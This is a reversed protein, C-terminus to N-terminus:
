MREIWTAKKGTNELDLREIFAFKECPIQKAIVNVVLTFAGFLWCCFMMTSTLETTGLLASGLNNSGANIMITQVAMEFIMVIWFIPNNFLSRFINIEDKEIVRCNFANFWNMLFFTHFCMTNLQLRGTPRLQNDRIPTTILNFPKEFFMLSGFYMIIVMVLIQYCGVCIIQRYIEAKIINDKRSIRNSINKNYPETGISIAALIDMLLNIWLMQIVNLPPYGTTAGGLITVFCIM